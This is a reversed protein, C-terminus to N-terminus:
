NRPAGPLRGILDVLEPSRFGAAQDTLQFDIRPVQYHAKLMEAFSHLALAGRGTRTACATPTPTPCCGTARCRPSCTRPCWGFPMPCGHRGAPWWSSADVGSACGVFFSFGQRAFRDILARCVRREVRGHRSGAFLAARREVSFWVVKGAGRAPLEFRVM